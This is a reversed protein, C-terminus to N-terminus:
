VIEIGVEGRQELSGTQPKRRPRARGVLLDFSCGLDNVLAGVLAVSIPLREQVMNTSSQNSGTLPHVTLSFGFQDIGIETRL